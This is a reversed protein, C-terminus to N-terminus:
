QASPKMAETTMQLRTKVIIAAALRCRARVSLSGVGHGETHAGRLRLWRGEVSGSVSGAGPMSM